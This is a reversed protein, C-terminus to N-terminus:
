KDKKKFLKIKNLMDIEEQLEAGLEDEEEQLKSTLKERDVKLERLFKIRREVFYFYLLGSIAAAYLCWVSTFGYPLIFAIITLGLLNLFGFIQISISSSLMLAGCTTIVYISADYYNATWPNSYFLIDHTVKVSSPFIALGYLTYLMLGFGLFTLIALLQKKLGKKEVLWIALPILFPLVGQAYYIFITEAMQLTRHPVEGGVGLWVFGETLQHLGFLLPISAFIVENPVSVKKLTLIGVIGIVGALTFNLIAYYMEM